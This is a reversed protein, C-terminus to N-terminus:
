RPPRRNRCEGDARRMAPVSGSDACGAGDTGPPVRPAPARQRGERRRSRGRSEAHPSRNRGSRRASSPSHPNRSAACGSRRPGRRVRARDADRCERARSESRRLARSGTRGSSPFPAASRRGRSPTARRGRRSRRLRLRRLAVRRRRSSRDVGTGRPVFRTITLWPLGKRAITPPVYRASPSAATMAGRPLSPKTTTARTGCFSHVRARSSRPSTVDARRDVQDGARFIRPGMATASRFLRFQLWYLPLWLAATRDLLQSVFPCKGHTARRARRRRQKRTASAAARRAQAAHLRAADGLVGSVHFGLISAADFRRWHAAPESRRGLLASLPRLFRRGLAMRASQEPRRDAVTRGPLLLREIARLAAADDDIHELVDWLIITNWAGTVEVLPQNRM